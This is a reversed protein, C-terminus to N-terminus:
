IVIAGSYHPATVFCEGIRGKENPERPSTANVTQLLEVDALNSIETM